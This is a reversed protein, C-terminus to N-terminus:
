SGGGLVDGRVSFSLRVMLLRVSTKVGNKMLGVGVVTKKNEVCTKTKSHTNTRLVCVCISGCCFNVMRILIRPRDKFVKFYM